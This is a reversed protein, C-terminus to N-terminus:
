TKKIPNRSIPQRDIWIGTEMLFEDEEKETMQGSKFKEVRGKVSTSDAAQKTSTSPPNDKEVRKKHAQQWLGFDEDKRAEELSVGKLKAEQILRARESSDLGEFAALATSIEDSSMDKSKVEAEEEPKKEPKAGKELKKFREFFQNQQKVFKDFEAKSVTEPPSEEDGEGTESESEETSTEEESTEEEETTESNEKEKEEEPM